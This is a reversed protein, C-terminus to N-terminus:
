SQGVLATDPNKRWIVKSITFVVIGFVIGPISLFLWIVNWEFGEMGAADYFFRQSRAFALGAADKQGGFLMEYYPYHDDSLQGGRLGLVVLRNGSKDTADVAVGELRASSDYGKSSTALAGSGQILLYLEPLGDFTTAFAAPLLNRQELEVLIREELSEDGYKKGSAIRDSLSYTNDPVITRKGSDDSETRFPVVVRVQAVESVERLLAPRSMFYGWYAKSLGISVLFTVVIMSVAVLGYAKAPRRLRTIKTLLNAILVAVIYITALNVALTVWKIDYNSKGDMTIIRIPSGLGFALASQDPEANGLSITTSSSSCFVAQLMLGLLIFIISLPTPKFVQLFEKM